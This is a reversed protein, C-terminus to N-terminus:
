VLGGRRKKKDEDLDDVSAGIKTNIFWFSGMLSGLIFTTGVKGITTHLMIDLYGQTMQMAFLGVIPVTAMMVYASNVPDRTASRLQRKIENNEKYQDLASHLLSRRTEPTGVDAAIAYYISFRKFYKNGVRDAMASVAEAPDVGLNMEDITRRFESYIPEQGYLDNAAQVISEKFDGLNEYRQIIMGMASGLQSEMKNLRKNALYHVFEYPLVYAVITFLATIIISKSLLLFFITVIITIGLRYVLFTFYDMDINAQKLMLETDLRKSVKIKDSFQMELRKSLVNSKMWSKQQSKRYEITRDTDSIYRKGVALVVTVVLLIFTIANM